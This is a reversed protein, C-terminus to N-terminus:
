SPKKKGEDELFFIRCYLVTCNHRFCSLCKRRYIMQPPPSLFYGESAVLRVALSIECSLLNKKEYPFNSTPPFSSFFLNARSHRQSFFFDLHSAETTGCAPPPLLNKVPTREQPFSRKTNGSPHFFLSIILFFCEGGGQVRSIIHPTANGKKLPCEMKDNEFIFRPFPDLPLTLNRWKRIAAEVTLIRLLTRGYSSCYGTNGQFPVRLLFEGFTM